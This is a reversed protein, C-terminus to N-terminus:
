SRWTASGPGVSSGRLSERWSSFWAQLTAGRQARHGRRAASGAGAAIARLPVGLSDGSGRDFRNPHGVPLTRAFNQLEPLAFAFVPHLAVGCRPINAQKKGKLKMSSSYCSARSETRALLIALVRGPSQRGRTARLSREVRFGPLRLCHCVGSEGRRTARGVAAGPPPWGRLPAKAEGFACSM